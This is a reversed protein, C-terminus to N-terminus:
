RTIFRTNKRMLVYVVAIMACLIFVVIILPASMSAREEVIVVTELGDPFGGISESTWTQIHLAREKIEYYNLPRGAHEEATLGLADWNVMQPATPVLIDIDGAEDPYLAVAMRFGPLSGVLLPRIHNIGSVNATKEYYDEFPMDSSYVFVASVDWTGVKKEYMAIEKESMVEYALESMPLVIQVNAVFTNNDMKVPVEFIFTGRELHSKIEEYRNTAIEFVNTGVYIKYASHVDVDEYTVERVLIDSFSSNIFMVIAETIYDQDMDEPLAQEAAASAPILCSILLLILVLSGLRQTLM